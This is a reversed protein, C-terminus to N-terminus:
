KINVIKKTTKAKKIIKVHILFYKGNVDQVNKQIIIRSELVTLLVYLLLMIVLATLLVIM